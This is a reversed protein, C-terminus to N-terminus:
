VLTVLADVPVACAELWGGADLGVTISMSFLGAQADETRRGEHKLASKVAPDFAFSVEV